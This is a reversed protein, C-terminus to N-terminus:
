IKWAFINLQLNYKGFSSSSYLNNKKTLFSTELYYDFNSSTLISLLQNLSQKKGNLSHYEIFINKVSGLHLSCDEIVSTEMGEIDLKLFDIHGGLFNSLKTCEIMNNSDAHIAGGLLADNKFGVLGEVVGIAKNNLSINNLSQNKINIQLLQFIAQDPEFSIIKSEPFRQKFYILSLGLNSGCDIILPNYIDSEFRYIETIFVEKLNQTFWFPSKIYFDFGNLKLKIIKDNNHFFILIKFISIIDLPLKNLNYLFFKLTKFRSKVFGKKM